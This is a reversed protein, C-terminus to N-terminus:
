MIMTEGVLYIEAKIGNRVIVLLLLEVVLSIIELFYPASCSSGSM